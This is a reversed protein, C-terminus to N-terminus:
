GTSADRICSALVPIGERILQESPFGFALRVYKVDENHIQFNRGPAYAVDREAALQALRELDISDPLKVWIFLGGVPQSWTCVNGLTAELAEFMADRKRKLAANAMDIHPWMRGDGLFETVIAAALTNPGADNRHGALKGLLRGRAMLYGLRVGPCFIKSLSCAYVMRESDDLAYLAPPKDGEYHVDAYCNDEFVITDFREAIEILQLRRERPLLTGTPNQYTALTYIFRAPRGEDQLRQLTAALADMRMGNEDLPVGVMDVGLNRYASITGIYNFDEMIVPDGRRCLVEAVLTVAQMSGNTLIMSDPDVPVGERDSERQAMLARLGPHGFMGPYTNLDVASNRIARQAAAAFEETPFTEPNTNGTGFDYTAM